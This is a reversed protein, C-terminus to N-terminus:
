EAGNCITPCIPTPLCPDDLRLDLLQIFCSEGVRLQRHGDGSFPLPDRGPLCLRFNLAERSALWFVLRESNARRLLPRRSHHFGHFM